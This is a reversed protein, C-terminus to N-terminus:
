SIEQSRNTAQDIVGRAQQIAQTVADKAAILNCPDGMTNERCAAAFSLDRLAALLQPALSALHEDVSQSSLKEDAYCVRVIRYGPHEPVDHIVGLPLKHLWQIFQDREQPACEDFGHFWGVLLDIDASSYKVYEPVGAYLKLWTIM